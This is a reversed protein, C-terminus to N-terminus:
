QDPVGEHGKPSQEAGELLEALGWADEDLLKRLYFEGIARTEQSDSSSREQAAEVALAYARRALQEQQADLNLRAATVCHLVYPLAADKYFGGECVALLRAGSETMGELARARLDPRETAEYARSCIEGYNMLVAPDDPAIRAARAASALAEEYRGDQGYYISTFLLAEVDNPDHRLAEEYSARQQRIAAARSAEPTPRMVRVVCLVVLTALVWFGLALTVTVKARM